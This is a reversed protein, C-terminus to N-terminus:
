DIFSKMAASPALCYNPTTFIFLDCEQMANRIVEKDKWYPCKSENEICTYCGLCFHNLDRPLFFETIDKEESIMEALLRGM